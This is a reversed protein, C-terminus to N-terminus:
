AGSAALTAALMAGNADYVQGPELPEGPRRLESGTALVAVRPRRGCSVREIGAAALAGVQAAAVRTGRAVVVSGARVDGGRPRINALPVVSEAIEVENDSEVVYELPIVADAGKPVAGGTAIAMVEGARMGGPAP